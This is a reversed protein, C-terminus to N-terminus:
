SFCLIDPSKIPNLIKSFRSFSDLEGSIPPRSKVPNPPSHATFVKQGGGELFFHLGPFFNGAISLVPVEPLKAEPPMGAVLDNLVCFFAM